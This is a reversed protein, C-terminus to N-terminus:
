DQRCISQPGQDPLLRAPHHMPLIEILHQKLGTRVFLHWSWICLKKGPLRM